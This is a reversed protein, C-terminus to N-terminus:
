FYASVAHPVGSKCIWPNVLADFVDWGGPLQDLNPLGYGNLFQWRCILDKSQDLLQNCKFYRALM